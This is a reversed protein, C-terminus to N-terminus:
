QVIVEREIRKKLDRLFNHLFLCLYFAHRYNESFINKRIKNILCEVQNLSCKLSEYKKDKSMFILFFSLRCDDNFYFNNTIQRLFFNLGSIIHLEKRTDPM